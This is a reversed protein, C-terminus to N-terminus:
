PEYGISGRNEPAAESRMNDQFLSQSPIAAALTTTRGSLRSLAHSDDPLAEKAVGFGSAALITAFRRCSGASALLAAYEQGPCTVIISARAPGARFKPPQNSWRDPSTAWWGISGNSGDARIKM